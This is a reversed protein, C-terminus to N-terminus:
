MTFKIQTKPETGKVVHYILGFEKLPCDFKWVSGHPHCCGESQM